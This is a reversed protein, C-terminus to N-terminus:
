KRFCITRLIWFTAEIFFEEVAFYFLLLALLYLIHIIIMLLKNQFFIFPSTHKISSAKTFSIVPSSATDDLHSNKTLKGGDQNKRINNRHKRTNGEEPASVSHSNCQFSDDDEGAYNNEDHRPGSSADSVMSLDKEEEQLVTKVSKGNKRCESNSSQELYATWGSEGGSSCESTSMNM